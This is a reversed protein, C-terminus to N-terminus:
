YYLLFYLQCDGHLSVSEIDIHVALPDDPEIVVIIQCTIHPRARQTDSYGKVVELNISSLSKRIRILNNLLAKQRPTKGCSLPSNSASVASALLLAVDPTPSRREAQRLRLLRFFERAIPTEREGFGVEPSNRAWM